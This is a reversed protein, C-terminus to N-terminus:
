FVALVLIELVFNKTSVVFERQGMISPYVYDFFKVGTTPNKIQRLYDSVSTTYLWDSDDNTKTEKDMKTKMPVNDGTDNFGDVVVSKFLTNWRKIGNIITQREGTSLLCYRHWSFYGLSNEESTRTLMKSLISVHEKDSQIMVMFTSRNSVGHVKFLNIQFKPANKPLLQRIRERILSTTERSQTAQELFGVNTPVATDLENYMLLIQEHSIYQRFRSVMLYDKLEHNTHLMIKTSLTNNEGPVPKMIYNKLGEDSIPVQQHHCIKGLTSNNDLPGIYTDQYAMQLAKVM